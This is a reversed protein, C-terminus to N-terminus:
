SSLTGGGYGFYVDSIEQNNIIPLAPELQNFENPSLISTIDPKPTTVVTQKIENSTTVPESTPTLEVNPAPIINTSSWIGINGVPIIRDDYNSPPKSVVWDIYEVLKTYDLKNTVNDLFLNFFVNTGDAAEDSKQDSLLGLLTKVNITVVSSPKLLEHSFYPSNDANFQLLDTLTQTSTYYRVDAGNVLKLIFEFKITNLGVIDDFNFKDFTVSNQKYGGELLFKGYKKFDDPIIEQIQKTDRDVINVNPLTKNTTIQSPLIPTDKKIDFTNIRSVSSKLPETLKPTLKSVGGFLRNRSLISAM